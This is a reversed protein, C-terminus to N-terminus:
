SFFWGVEKIISFGRVLRIRIVEIFICERSKWLFYNIIYRVKFLMGM